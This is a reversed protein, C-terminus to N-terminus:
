GLGLCLDIFVLDLGVSFGYSFDLLFGLYFVWRFNTLDAMTAAALAAAARGGTTM